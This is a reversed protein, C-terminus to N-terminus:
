ASAATGLALRSERTEGVFDSIPALRRRIFGIMRPYLFPTVFSCWRSRPLLQRLAAGYLPLIQGQRSLEPHMFSCTLRVTDASIRHTIVWGVIKGDSRAGVSSPDYGHRDFRWPALYPAIWSAEGAAYAERLADKDAQPIESWPTIELGRAQFALRRPDLLGSAFGAQPTLRVSLTRGRPASWGRAALISEFYPIPEKGTTYVAELSAAGEAAAAEEAAAVLRGGLGRRREVGAVFVSLLQAKGGAGAPGAPRALLAMGVARDGRRAVLALPQMVQSDGQEAHLPRPELSLLKTYVPFTMAALRGNDPEALRTIEIEDTEPGIQM